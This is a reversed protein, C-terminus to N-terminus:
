TQLCVSYFRHKHQMVKNLTNSSLVDIQKQRMLKNQKQYITGTVITDKSMFRLMSLHRKVNGSDKCKKNKQTHSQLKMNSANERGFEPQRASSDRMDTYTTTCLTNIRVACEVPKMSGPKLQTETPVSRITSSISTSYDSHTGVFGSFCVFNLFGIM